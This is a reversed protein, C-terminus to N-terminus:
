AQVDVNRGVNPDLMALMQQAESKQVDMAKKLVAASYQTGFKASDVALLGQVSAVADTNM